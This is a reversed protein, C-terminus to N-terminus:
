GTAACLRREIEAARDRLQREVENADQGKAFLTMIPRRAPIRTGAAPVDAVRPWPEVLAEGIAWEATARDVVVDRQTFVTAKGHCSTADTGEGGTARRRGTLDRSDRWDGTGVGGDGCAAVHATIAHVGALREIIEVSATYRPNVEITWALDGDVILDVGFLGVLNFRSALVQGICQITASVDRHLRDPPFYAPGIAGAYQFEAAGLWPQGVLQRVIGMVAARGAAAVFVVACPTGTIRRQFFLPPSPSFPLPPSVDTLVHVGTGSAGRGTKALWSGDRPLGAASDRTEPFLLGADGLTRALEHPSRVRRLTDGGNGLLPAVGAMADVLEPHNELAGTYMWASPRERRLWDLLGDPYRDIRTARAQRRLDEDAFLDATVPVFGARRASGAAARVSAGVIALSETM